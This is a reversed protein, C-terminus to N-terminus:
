TQIRFPLCQKKNSYQTEIKSDNFETSLNRRTTNLFSSARDENPSDQPSNTNSNPTYFEDERVEPLKRVRKTIRDHDAATFLREDLSNTRTQRAM